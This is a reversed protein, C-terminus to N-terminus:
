LDGWRILKCASTREAINPRRLLRVMQGGHALYVPFFRRKKVPSCSLKVCLNNWPANSAPSLQTWCTDFACFALGCHGLILQISQLYKEAM